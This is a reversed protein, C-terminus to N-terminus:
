AIGLERNLFGVVYKWLVFYLILIAPFVYPFWNFVTPPITFNLLRTGLYGVAVLVFPLLGGYIGLSVKRSAPKAVYLMNWFGWLSPVAAMPYIMIRAVRALNYEYRLFTYTTVAVLLFLTPVFIGALYARLYPYRNM